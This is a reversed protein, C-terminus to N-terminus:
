VLCGAKYLSMSMSHASVIKELYGLYAFEMIYYLSLCGVQHLCGWMGCAQEGLGTRSVAKLGQVTCLSSDLVVCLAVHFSLLRFPCLEYVMYHDDIMYGPCPETSACTGVPPHISCQMPM